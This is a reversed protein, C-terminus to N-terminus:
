DRSGQIKKLLKTQLKMLDNLKTIGAELIIENACECVGLNDPNNFPMLCAPCHFVGTEFELQESDM